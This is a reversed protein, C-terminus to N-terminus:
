EWSWGRYTTGLDVEELEHVALVILRAARLVVPSTLLLGVGDELEGTAGSLSAPDSALRLTFEALSYQGRHVGVFPAHVALTSALRAARRRPPLDVMADIDRLLARALTRQYPADGVAHEIESTRIEDFEVSARRELQAWRGGGIIGAIQSAIAQQVHTRGSSAFPDAPLSATAWKSALDILRRLDPYSRIGGPLQRVALHELDAPRRIQPGLIVSSEATGARATVLGGAPWRLTMDAPLEVAVPRDPHAFELIEVAAAEGTHNVLRLYPGRGDRRTVWRLPAFERDCKLSVRGLRPHSVSIVASEAEDYFRRIGEDERFESRIRAWHEGEIPLGAEAQRRARVSGADDSVAMEVQVPVGPPGVVELAATGDWLETLTPSVPTAIIMLGERYTGSPRRVSPPRIIIDIWGEATPQEHAAPFLLVRLRHSGVALDSLRLFIEPTASPWQILFPEGDLSTVCRVLDRSARIAVVPAEGAIWEATGEGDWSAPVLGVPRLEVDTVAGLGITTLSALEDSGLIDPPSLSYAHVGETACEADKIWPPLEGSLPEQCLVIYHHGPRIFKGRVEVASAADRVRFLWLPGPTLVSQDALLSNVAASGNELQILPVGGRPWATLRLARGPYLLQGRALPAATYGNVKARLRAAEDLIAPLREALPSLDPIEIYANWAGDHRLFLPPDAAAPLRMGTAADTAGYGGRTPRFGRTRVQTASAKAGRFLRWSEREKSLDAVLRRLTAPLLLPSDGEEGILLSVAVQGLLDSNEAFAQFRSSTNLSRAALRKGLETPNELLESTLARRYEFLIRALHRQLDTPLVAHTIPWCIISFQAAWRGIPRAGNFRDAFQRYKQRIYDRDGNQLWDPTRAEFTQWYEDGSYEYGVEAAYVVFPLWSRQPLEGRRVASTVEARLLTLEAESLGHELAFLPAGSGFQGRHAKLSTFHAELRAHLLGLGSEDLGALDIEASHGIRRRPAPRERREAEDVRASTQAERVSRIRNLGNSAVTNDPDIELVRRYLAEAAELDGRERMCRALRNYGAPREPAVEILRRNLDEAAAGWEGQRALAEAEQELAALDLDMASQVDKTAASDLHGRPGRTVSRESVRSGSM